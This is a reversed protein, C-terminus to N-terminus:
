FEAPDQAVKKRRMTMVVAVGGILLLGAGGVLGTLETGTRPLDGGNGADSNDGDDNGDEDGDGGGANPDDEVSFDGTM